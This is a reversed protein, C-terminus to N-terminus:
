DTFPLDILSKSCVSSNSISANCMELLSGAIKPKILCWRCFAPILLKPINSTSKDLNLIIAPLLYYIIIYPLPILCLVIILYKLITRIQIKHKIGKRNKPQEFTSNSGVVKVILFIKVAFLFYCRRLKATFGLFYESQRVWFLVGLFRLRKSKLLIM